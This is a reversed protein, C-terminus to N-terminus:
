RAALCMVYEICSIYVKIISNEHM